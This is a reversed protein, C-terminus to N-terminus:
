DGSSTVVGASLACASDSFVEIRQSFSSFTAAEVAAAAAAGALAFRLMKHRDGAASRTQSGSNQERKSCYQACRRPGINRHTGVGHRWLTYLLLDVKV